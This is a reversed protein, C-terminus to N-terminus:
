QQERGDVCVVECRFLEEVCIAFDEIDFSEGSEIFLCSQLPPENNNGPCAYLLNFDESISNIKSAVEESINHGDQNTCVVRQWSIYTWGEPCNLTIKM